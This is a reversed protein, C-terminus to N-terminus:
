KIQTLITVVLKWIGFSGFVVVCSILYPFLSEKVQVKTDLGATMYRIGLIAGVIVAVITAIALLTNYLASSGERLNESGMGIGRHEYGTSMWDKGTLFIEQILKM